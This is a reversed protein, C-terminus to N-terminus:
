DFWVRRDVASPSAQRENQGVAARPARKKMMLTGLREDDCEMLGLHLRLVSAHGFLAPLFPKAYTNSSGINRQVRMLEVSM